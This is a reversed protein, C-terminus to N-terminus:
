ETLLNSQCRQRSVTTRGNEPTVRSSSETKQCKMSTSHDTQGRIDTLQHIRKGRTVTSPALTVTTWDTEDTVSGAPTKRTRATDSCAASPMLTAQAHFGPNCNPSQRQLHPRGRRSGKGPRRCRSPLLQQKLCGHQLGLSMEGEQRQRQADQRLTQKGRHKSEFEANITINNSSINKREVCATDIPPPEM